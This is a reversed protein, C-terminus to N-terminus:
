KWALMECQLTVFCGDETDAWEKVATLTEKIEDDSIGADIWSQYFPDGKQM